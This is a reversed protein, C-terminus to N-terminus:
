DDINEDDSSEDFAFGFSFKGAQEENENNIINDDNVNTLREWMESKGTQNFLNKQEIKNLKVLANDLEQGKGNLILLKKFLEFIPMSPLKSHLIEGCDEIQLNDDLQLSSFKESYDKLKTLDEDDNDKNEKMIEIVSDLAIKVQNPHFGSIQKQKNKFFNLTNSLKSLPAFNQTLAISNDLNIVSHWWGSPVHICENPFTIGILCEDIKLCDNFFGSIVWEAIGVPSTVESEEDDTGVGPPTIGPPLMVWLKRGTLSTNWASTSNPDKHFTSGSRGPGIIVWAYDPRCQIKNNLKSNFVEFLDPKFIEPVKYENRLTKMAISNCDFLYLPSEDKNDELYKSYLTLPWQVSEQRFTVDPFRKVLEPLDWNPWRDPNSNTLIFPVDSWNENFENLTVNEEKLRIIRNPPLNKYNFKNDISDRHYIEEEKIIKQFIKPYDVQSCQFPRYLIDSCLLNEPVQQINAQSESSINLLSSRWSGKWHLKPTPKHSREAENIQKNFQYKWIGEDYLYAYMVRSTHSLNKLSNPDLYNFLDMLLDEQLLSFTGMQENKSVGNPQNESALFSNGSPKVNLPHRSAIHFLSISRSNNPYMKRSRKQDPEEPTTTRSVPSSGNRATM